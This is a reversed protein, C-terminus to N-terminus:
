LNQLTPSVVRVHNYACVTLLLLRLIYETGTQEILKNLTNGQHNLCYAGRCRRDTEVLSCPAIDWFITMM